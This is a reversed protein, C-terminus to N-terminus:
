RWTSTTPRSWKAGPYDARLRALFQRADGVILVNIDNPKALQEAAARVESATVGEIRQPYEGVKSLDGDYLAVNTLIGALDVSDDASRRFDGILARKRAALEEASPPAARLAALADLMLQAVKPATANQTQATALFLGGGHYEAVQSSAGYTLGRRIRIETNLRASYGGGLVANAVEVAFHSPDQRRVSPAALTVTAEDANPTDIVIWRGSTSPRSVAFQVPPRPPRAWGGFAREAIAFATSPDVNGTLVLIANDPRYLRLHQRIMDSRHIRALSSPLGSTAHGYPGGGFVLPAVAFTSISTPERMTKSFEDSAARRFARLDPAGFSPHRVAEAFIPLAAALSTSLGDLSFRTSDYDTQADLTDGLEDLSAAVPM